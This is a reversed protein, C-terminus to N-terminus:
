ELTPYVKEGRLQAKGNEAEYCGYFPSLMDLWLAIKHREEDSLQVGYHDELLPLLPSKLAGFEMPKTVVSNGYKHFGYGHSMLNYYSQYWNRVYPERALSFTKSEPKAHCEVCHKDLIPQVLEVFNAPRSGEVDPKLESPARLFATPPAGKFTTVDGKSEHCGICSVNDGPQFYTGSRMSQVTNGNEDLAQFFLEVQAPVRFHASGDEEVPVTGLVGRVINVSDGSTGERFGVDFPIPGSPISMAYVQVVRLEKIKKEPDWPRLSQYVNAVTVTAQPREKIDRPPLAIYEQSPIEGPQVLEPMVSPQVRARFPMPSVCGIEPDRYVLERNGWRDLLYLGYDGRTSGNWEMGSGNRFEYDAVALFLNESLAYPFGWVQAGGQSEPFDVEPTLRRVAAMDDGTKEELEARSPDIIVLSGYNQGHHPGGTAVLKSSGPIPKVDMETDARNRRITFNGHVERPNSGNLSMTWPHHATCGHRDIYDWRTWLIRGDNSVSPAWENTEHYSLCRMYSGDTNMDFLTFNPCERGCRLYGGRRESIFAIRGNPLFCPYFDNWTGDTLMKLGSGDANCKFIHLCRGIDWHGRSLDLHFSQKKTGTCEVWAFAIEKGDYSLTPTAFAGNELRKGALRGNQVEANELVNREIPKREAEPVDSKRFLNSVVFIGGGPVFNRGYYQDCLHDYTARHKKVLLVEDFDLEPNSFMMDRRIKCIKEFLAYRALTEPVPVSDLEPRLVDLKALADTNKQYESAALTRRFVVDVPDRDTTLIGAQADYLEEAHDAYWTGRQVLQEVIVNFQRVLEDKVVPRIPTLTSKLGDQTESLYRLSKQFISFGLVNEPFFKIGPVLIEIEAASSFPLGTMESKMVFRVFRGNKASDWRVSAKQNERFTDTDFKGVYVPEGLNKPDDCVYVEYERFTGNTAGERPTYIFGDIARTEKLDFQIWHPPPNEGRTWETHWMTRPNQDCARWVEYGRCDSDTTISAPVYTTEEAYSISEWLCILVISLKVLFSNM